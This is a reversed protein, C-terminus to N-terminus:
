VRREVWINIIAVGGIFAIIGITGLLASIAYIGWEPIGADDLLDLIEGSLNSLDRIDWWHDTILSLLALMPAQLAVPGADPMM